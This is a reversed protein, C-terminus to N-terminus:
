DKPSFLTVRSLEQAKRTWAFHPRNENDIMDQLKQDRVFGMNVSMSAAAQKASVLVRVENVYGYLTQLIDRQHSPVATQLALNMGPIIDDRIPLTCQVTHNSTNRYLTNYFAFHQATTRADEAQIQQQRSLQSETRDDLARPSVIDSGSTQAVHSVAVPNTGVLWSPYYAMDILVNHTGPELGPMLWSSFSALRDQASKEPVYDSPVPFCAITGTIDYGQFSTDMVYSQDFATGAKIRPIQSSLWFIDQPLVYGKTATFVVTCNLTMLIRMLNALLNGSNVTNTLVTIMHRALNLKIYEAEVGTFRLQALSTIEDLMNLSTHFSELIRQANPDSRAIVNVGRKSKVVDVIERAINVFMAYPDDSLHKRLLNINDASLYTQFPVVDINYFGSGYVVNSFLAVGSAVSVLRHVLSVSFDVSRKGASSVRTGSVYGDFLVMVKDLMREPFAPGFDGGDAAATSLGRFKGLVRVRTYKKFVDLLSELTYDVNASQFLLEQKGPQETYYGVPKGIPIDVIATPLGQTSFVASFESVTYYANNVEVVIACTGLRFKTTDSQTSLTTM